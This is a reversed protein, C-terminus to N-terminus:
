ATSSLTSTPSGCRTPASPAPVPVAARVSGSATTRPGTSSTPSSWSSGPFGMQLIVGVEFDARERAAQPVGGPYRHRLGTEVESRFWTEETEGAPVPFRPMFTGNGETFSVECREAILLTDDCAEKMGHKHEWLERMEGASKIYYGDGDLRFRKPDSMM